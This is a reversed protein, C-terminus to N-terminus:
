EVAPTNAIMNLLITVDSITVEGSDDLDSDLEEHISGTGGIVNLLLTVDTISVRGDADMDGAVKELQAIEETIEGHCKECIYTNSGPALTTAPVDIEDGEPCVHDHIPVILSGDNNACTTTVTNTSKYAITQGDKEYITLSVQYEAGTVPVFVEDVCPTFRYLSWGLYESSPTVNYKEGNINLEWIYNDRAAWLDNFGEGKYDFIKLLLQTNGSWNEWGKYVKELSINRMDTAEYVIEYTVDANVETVATTLVYEYNGEIYSGPVPAIPILGERWIKSEIVEGDQTWTVTYYEYTIPEANTLDYYYDTNNTSIFLYGGDFEDAYAMDYADLNVLYKQNNVPVFAEHAGACITFRLRLETEKVGFQSSPTCTLKEEHDGEDDTWTFTLVFRYNELDNWVPRLDYSGDGNVDVLLQTEGNWNEMGVNSYSDLTPVRPARVTKNYQATYSVEETAAVIEKDWEGAYTYNWCYDVYDVPESPPVPVTGPKVYTVYTKGDAVWNVKVAEKYVAIVKSNAGEVATFTYTEDTSVTEGDVTWHSFYYGVDPMDGTVSYTQTAPDFAVSAMGNEGGIDYIYPVNAEMGESMLYNKSTYSAIHTREESPYSNVYVNFVIDQTRGAVPTFGEKLVRIEACVGYDGWDYHREWAISYVATGVVMEIEPVQGGKEPNGFLYQPFAQPCIILDEGDMETTGYGWWSTDKQIFDYTTAYEYGEDYIYIPNMPCTWKNTGSAVVNGNKDLVNMTITYPENYGPIFPDEEICPQFRLMSYGPASSYSMNMVKNDYGDGDIVFQTFYEGADIGAKLTDVNMRTGSKELISENIKVLLQTRGGLNEMGGFTPEISLTNQPAPFEAVAWIQIETFHFGTNANNYLGYARVYRFSQKETLTCEWGEANSVANDIKEGLKTWTSIDADKDNSGYLAFRYDRGGLTYVNLKEITYAQGLDFEVYCKGALGFSTSPDAENTGWSGLDVYDAINGDNIGGSNYVGQGYSYTANTAVNMLEAPRKAWVRVENLHFGCNSSNGMGYVRVYRCNVAEELTASFEVNSVTDDTKEALKTWTTVDATNDNTGYIVFKYVRSSSIYNWVDVKEVDYSKGLDIEVYCTGALGFPEDEINDAWYGLDFYKDNYGDTVKNGDEGNGATVQADLAVNWLNSEEETEASVFTSLTIAPFTALVMVLALVFSLIRKSM